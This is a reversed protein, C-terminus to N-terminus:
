VKSKSRKKIESAKQIMGNYNDCLEKLKRMIVGRSKHSELFKKEMIKTDIMANELKEDLTLDYNYDNERPEIHKKNNISSNIKINTFNSPFKKKGFYFNKLKKPIIQNILSQTKYDKNELKISDINISNMNNANIKKINEDRLKENGNFCDIQIKSTKFTNNNSEDLFKNKIYKTPDISKELKFREDTIEQIDLNPLGEKKEKEKGESLLENVYDNVIKDKTSKNINEYTNHFYILDKITENKDNNVNTSITNKNITQEKEDSNLNENIAIPNAEVSNSLNYRNKIYGKTTQNLGNLFKNKKVLNNKNESQKNKMSFNKQRYSTIKSIKYFHELEDEKANTNFRENSQNQYAMLGENINIKPLKLMNKNVHLKLGNKLIIKNQNIYNNRKLLDDKDKVNPSFYNSLISM